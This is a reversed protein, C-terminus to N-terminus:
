HPGAGPPPTGLVDVVEVVADDPGGVVIGIVLPFGIPGSCCKRPSTLPVLL